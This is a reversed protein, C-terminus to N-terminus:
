LIVQVAILGFHTSAYLSSHLGASDILVGKELCMQLVEIGTASALQLLDAYGVESFEDSM